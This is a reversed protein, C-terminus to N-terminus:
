SVMKFLRSNRILYRYQNEIKLAFNFASFQEMSREAEKSLRIKVQENYLIKDLYLLFEEMSNYTYGNIDNLVVGDLCRDSKAVVPLGSALAEIYTLGQTESQSASIFVDGLQYYKGIEDWSREGAFITKNEIGMDIVSSKLREADPGNGV